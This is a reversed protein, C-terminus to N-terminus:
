VSRQGSYVHAGYPSIHYDYRNRWELMDIFAELRTDFGAHGTHEDLTILTLPIHFGGQNAIQLLEDVFSDIGCGFSTLLIMGSIMKDEMMTLGSGLLSKGYSWFLKKPYRECAKEIKHAQINEPFLLTYGRAALKGCINMNIYQDYVLYPHGILGIKGKPKGKVPLVKKELLTVPNAGELLMSRYVGQKKKALELARHIAPKSAELERGLICFGKNINKIGDRANYDLIILNPNGPVSNKIMEPLGIFKPCIYESPHVSVLRPVLIRDVKGILDMVHGHFLKVPLCADDVSNKVSHDLIGQNTGSSLIVEHGLEEIFTKWLPYYIYYLLARPIGIKM